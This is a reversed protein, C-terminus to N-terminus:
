SGMGASIREILDGFGFRYSREIFPDASPCFYIETNRFVVTNDLNKSGKPKVLLHKKVITFIQTGESSNLPTFAPPGSRRPSLEKKGFPVEVLPPFRLEQSYSLVMSVRMM